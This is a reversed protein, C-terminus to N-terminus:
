IFHDVLVSQKEVPKIVDVAALHAPHFRFTELDKENDFTSSAILDFAIPRPSVNIGVHISRIEPIKEKLAELVLKLEKCKAAKEEDPMDILKIMVDHQIM